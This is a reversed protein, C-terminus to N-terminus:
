QTIAHASSINDQGAQPQILRRSKAAPQRRAGDLDRPTAQVEGTMVIEAGISDGGAIGIAKRSGIAASYVLYLECSLCM